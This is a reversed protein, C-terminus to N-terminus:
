LDCLFINGTGFNRMFILPQKKLVLEAKRKWLFLPQCYFYSGEKGVKFSLQSLWVIHNLFWYPLKSTKKLKLIKIYWSNKDIMVIVQNQHDDSDVTKQHDDSDVTKTIMVILQKWHDDSDVTKQHDDSYFTKAIMGILQKWNDDSDVTKPSWWWWSNKTIMAM